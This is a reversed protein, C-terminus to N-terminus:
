SRHSRRRSVRPLMRRPVLAPASDQEAWSSQDPWIERGTGAEEFAKAVHVIGTGSNPDWGEKEPQQMMSRGPQHVGAARIMSSNLSSFVKLIM